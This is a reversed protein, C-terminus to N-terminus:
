HRVIFLVNRSCYHYVSHSKFEPVITGTQTNHIDYDAYVVGVGPNKFAPLMTQVKEPYAEDDADLILFYDAKDWVHRM